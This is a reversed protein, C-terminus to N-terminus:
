GDKKTIRNDYSDQSWAFVANKHCTDCVAIVTIRGEGDTEWEMDYYWKSSSNLIGNPYRELLVQDLYIHGDCRWKGKPDIDDKMNWSDFPNDYTVKWLKGGDLAIAM